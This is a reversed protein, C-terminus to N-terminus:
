PTRGAERLAKAHHSITSKSLGLEAAIDQQTLGDELL